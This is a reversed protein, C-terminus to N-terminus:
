NTPKFALRIRVLYTHSNNDKQILTNQILIYPLIKKTRYM